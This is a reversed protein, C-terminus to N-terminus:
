NYNNIFVSSDDWINLFCLNKIAYITTYFCKKFVIFKYKSTHFAKMECSEWLSKFKLGFYLPLDLFHRHSILYLRYRKYIDSLAKM